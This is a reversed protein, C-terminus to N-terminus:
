WCFLCAPLGLPAMGQFKQKAMHLMEKDNLPRDKGLPWTTCEFVVGTNM